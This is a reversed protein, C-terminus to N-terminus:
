ASRLLGEGEEAGLEELRRASSEPGLWSRTESVFIEARHSCSEHEPGLLEAVLSDLQSRVEAWAM